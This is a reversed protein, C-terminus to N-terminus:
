KAKCVAIAAQAKAVLQPSPPTQKSMLQGIEETTLKENLQNAGCACHKKANAEGITQAAAPTCDKMFADRTGAPWAAQASLPLLMILPAALAFLRTLRM